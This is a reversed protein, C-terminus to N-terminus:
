EQFSLPKIIETLWLEEVKNIQPGLCTAEMEYNFFSWLEM